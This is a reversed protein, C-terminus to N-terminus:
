DVGGVSDPTRGEEDADEGDEVEEFEVGGRACVCGGGFDGREEEGGVAGCIGDCVAGRQEFRCKCVEEEGGGEKGWCYM